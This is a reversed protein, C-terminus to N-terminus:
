LKEIEIPENRRRVFWVGMGVLAVVVVFAYFAIGGPFAVLSFLGLVVFVLVLAVAAVRIM